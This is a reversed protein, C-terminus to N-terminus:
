FFFDEILEVVSMRISIQTMMEASDDLFNTIFANQDELFLNETDNGLMCYGVIM